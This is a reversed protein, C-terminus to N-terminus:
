SPRERKRGNEDYNRDTFRGVGKVEKRRVAPEGRSNVKGRRRKGAPPTGNGTHRTM